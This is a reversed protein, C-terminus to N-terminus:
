FESIVIYIRTTLKAKVGTLPGLVVAGSPNASTKGPAATPSRRRAQWGEITWAFRRGPRAGTFADLFSALPASSFPRESGAAPWTQSPARRLAASHTLDLPAQARRRGARTRWGRTERGDRKSGCCQGTRLGRAPPSSPIPFPLPRARTPRSRRSARSMRLTGNDLLRGPPRDRMSM